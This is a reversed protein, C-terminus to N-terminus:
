YESGSGSSMSPSRPRKRRELESNLDEVEKSFEASIDMVKQFLNQMEEPYPSEDGVKQALGQAYGATIWQDMFAKQGQLLNLEADPQETDMKLKRAFIKLPSALADILLELKEQEEETYLADLRTEHHLEELRTNIKLLEEYTKKADEIDHSFYNERKEASTATAKEVDSLKQLHDMKRSHATEFQFLSLGKGHSLRYLNKCFLWLLGVVSCAAALNKLINNIDTQKFKTQAPKIAAQWEQKFKDVLQQRQDNQHRTPNNALKGMEDEFKKLKTALDKHLDLLYAAEPDKAQQLTQIHGGLRLLWYDLLATTPSANLSKEFEALGKMNRGKNKFLSAFKWGEEGKERIERLLEPIHQSKITVEDGVIDKYTINSDKYKAQVAAPPNYGFIKEDTQTIPRYGKKNYM